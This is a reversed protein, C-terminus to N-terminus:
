ENRLALMPDIKMARRAPVYCALLAIACVTLSVLAFTLMDTPRVGFLMGSMLRTLGLAALVGIGIGILAMRAGDALIMRLVQLRGAGLAIRVGIEQTRQGVLYSLVGYIGISALLLALGAFVALLIMSFRKSAISRLVIQEMPYDDFAVLDGNFTLLQHRLTAFDPVGWKGRAHVTVRLLDKLSSDPIQAMSIYLQTRLASGTDLDLGWQNVHAVVGIIRPNPMRGSNSPDAGLELYQGIPNQGAFYKEALTQDIVVVAASHESDSDSLFRGRLLAIHLTKLYQPEVIYALAMSLDAVHVPRPRGPFSFYLEDDGNMPDAGYSLSVSQVGPISALKNHMQRFFLRIGAPDEKLLSSPSSVSFTMVNHPDFGPNTGWLVFLTRIMLGAGILLVLAMAMELVVFVSQTRNRSGAVTRASEKLDGAIEVHRTRLAPALGFVIGATISILVTFLLVRLDLGIEEARPMGRPMTAIAAATGLKAILLGLGGGTLALLTSETLLQRVIRM